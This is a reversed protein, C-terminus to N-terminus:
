RSNMMDIDIDLKYKNNLRKVITRLAILAEITHRKSNIIETLEQSNNIKSSIEPNTLNKGILELLKSQIPSSMGTAHQFAKSGNMKKTMEPMLAQM